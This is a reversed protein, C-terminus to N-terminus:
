TKFTPLSSMVQPYHNFGALRRNKVKIKYKNHKPKQLSLNAAQILPTLFNPLRDIWSIKTRVDAYARGGTFVRASPSPLELAVRRPSSLAMKEQRSIACHKQAVLTKRPPSRMVM